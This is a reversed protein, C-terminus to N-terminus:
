NGATGAPEDAHHAVPLRGKPPPLETGTRAAIEREPEAPDTRRGEHLLHYRDSVETCYARWLAVAVPSDHSEPAATWAM